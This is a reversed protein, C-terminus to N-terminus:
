FCFPIDIMLIEFDSDHFANLTLTLKPFLRQTRNPEFRKKTKSIFPNLLTTFILHSTLAIQEKIAKIDFIGWFPYSIVARHGPSFLPLWTKKESTSKNQNLDVVRHVHHMYKVAICVRNLTYFLSQKISSNIVSQPQWYASVSSNVIHKLGMIFVIILSDTDLIRSTPVIIMNGVLTSRM